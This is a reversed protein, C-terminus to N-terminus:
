TIFCAAKKSRERWNPITALAYLEYVHSFAPFFLEYDRQLPVKNRPYPALRRALGPSGCAMRALKYARRSFPIAPLDTTDIRDADTVAAVTDEFEYGVCNAVLNAIRRQSLQLVNAQM